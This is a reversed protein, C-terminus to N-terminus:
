CAQRLFPYPNVPVGGAPNIELHLHSPGGAANGTTGVTGIAEGAEVQRDSGITSDMHAGYFKTGDSTVLRFVLGGRPSRDFTLSGSRPAVITSGTSAMLDSGEHYRGESRPLGWDFSFRAGPVPCRIATGSRSSPGSSSGAAPIVLTAGIRIRDPNTLNNAATIASVSSGHALAIGSLTDGSKVTYRPGDTAPTDAVAATPTM